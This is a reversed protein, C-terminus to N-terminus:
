AAMVQALDHAVLASCNRDLLEPVDPPVKVPEDKGSQFEIPHLITM